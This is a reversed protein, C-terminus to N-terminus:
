LYSNTQGTQTKHIQNMKVDRAPQPFEAAGRRCLVPPSDVSFCQNLCSFIQSRKPTDPLQSSASFFFFFFFFTSACSIGTYNRVSEQSVGIFIAVIM